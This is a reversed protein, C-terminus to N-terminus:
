FDFPDFAPSDPGADVVARERDQRRQQEHLQEVVRPATEPDEHYAFEPQVYVLPEPTHVCGGLLPQAAVILGLVMPLSIMSRM